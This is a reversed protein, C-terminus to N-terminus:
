ARVGGDPQELSQLTPRSGADPDKFDAYICALLKDIADGNRSLPLYLKEVFAPSHRYLGRYSIRQPRREAVCREYQGLIYASVGPELVEDMYRGTYDAGDYANIMTGILRLRFRLPQAEVDILAVYPMWRALEEALFDSRAPLPRDGRKAEWLDRLARLETEPTLV